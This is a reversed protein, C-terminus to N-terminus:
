KRRPLRRITEREVETWCNGNLINGVHSSSIVGIVKSIEQYTAGKRALEVIKKVDDCTIKHMPHNEGSQWTGHDRKDQFNGSTTDWRLNSLRNDTRVGNNHAAEFGEPPPGIFTRLVLRHVSITRNKGKGIAVTYYGHSNIGQKLIKGRKVRYTPEGNPPRTFVKRDLSRVRGHDSVQYVGEHGPLDRWYEM